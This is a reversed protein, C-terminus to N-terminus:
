GGIKRKFDCRLEVGDMGNECMMIKELCALGQHRAEWRWQGVM